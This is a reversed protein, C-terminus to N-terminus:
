LISSFPDSEHGGKKWNQYSKFNTISVNFPGSKHSKAYMAGSELTEWDEWSVQLGGIPLVNVWMKWATPLGTEDLIWLYSDGPTVGGSLYSVLLGEKGDELAVYRLETDGQYIQTFANMWFADNTFYGYATEILAAQNEQVLVDKHYVNGELTSPNFLASYNSWRVEVLHRKRDWMFHHMGMFSWEVYRTKEWGKINVRDLMKQALRDAQVGQKGEPVPEDYLLFLILFLGLSFLCTYLCFKLFFRAISKIM